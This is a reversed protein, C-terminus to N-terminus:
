IKINEVIEVLDEKKLKTFIRQLMVKNDDSNNMSIYEALFNTYEELDGVGLRLMKLNREWSLGGNIKFDGIDQIETTFKKYYDQFVGSSDVKSERLTIEKYVDPSKFLDDAVHKSELLGWDTCDKILKVLQLKSDCKYM